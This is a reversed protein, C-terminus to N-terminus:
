LLQYIKGSIEFASFSTGLLPINEEKCKALASEEPKLNNVILVAAADKLSAVAIVNQHTQMTIWIMGEEMNGMVDSLLDGVYGGTIEKDLGIEGCFVNLNLRNVIDSVKM